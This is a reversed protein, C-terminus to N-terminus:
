DLNRGRNVVKPLRRSIFRITTRIFRKFGLKRLTQKSMSFKHLFFLKFQGPFEKNLNLSRGNFHSQSNEIFRLLNRPYSEVNQIYRDRGEKVTAFAREEGELSFNWGVGGWGLEHEAIPKSLFSNEVFYAPTGSLVAETIISSNELSFVGKCKGLLHLLEPRTEAMPSDRRIEKVKISPIEIPKGVFNRFKAAYLLYFDERPEQNFTIERYDIAPLFLEFDVTRGSAEYFDEAISKSYSVIMDKKSFELTGGLAGAFNMLYRITFESKLPNGPITESYIVIPNVAEKRHMRALSKTLVPTNLKVNIASEPSFSDPVVLFARYGISNISHCLYHLARVGASDTRWGTTYIYYPHDHGGYLIRTALEVDGDNM